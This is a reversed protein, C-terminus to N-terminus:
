QQTNKINMELKVERLIKVADAKKLNNFSKLMKTKALLPLTMQCERLYCVETFAEETLGIARCLNTIEIGNAKVLIDEVYDPDIHEIEAILQVLADVNRANSFTIIAESISVEQARVQNVEDLSSDLNLDEVKQEAERTKHADSMLKAMESKSHEDAVRAVKKLAGGQLHPLLKKMDKPLDDRMLLVSLLEGDDPSFKLIHSFGKSSIRASDNNCVTRLVVTEGYGILTDTVASSVRDRKAIAIRHETSTLNTVNILDDDNFVASHELMPSAIEANEYILAIAFSKPTNDVHSFKAAIEIKGNKDMDSLLRTFVDGFLELETASNKAENEIFLDTIVNMLELRKETSKETALQTLQNLM